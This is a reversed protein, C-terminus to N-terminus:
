ERETFKDEQHVLVNQTTVGGAANKRVDIEM